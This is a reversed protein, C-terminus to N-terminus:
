QAGLQYSGDADIAESCCSTTWGIRYPMKAHSHSAQPLNIQACGVKDAVEAAPIERLEIQRRDQAPLGADV